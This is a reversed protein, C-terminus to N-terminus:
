ISCATAMRRSPAWRRPGRMATWRSTTAPSDGQWTNALQRGKPTFEAGWAYEAGDLGGRAAYEWEAETPLHKGAWAAYAAVDEAAVHVVPHRERGHLTSGPGEPHRWDAGPVFAWWNLHNRLDVPRVPPVFLSSGPVLSEPAAGPYRAADPLREAVTRYGTAKVFRRFHAATVPTADIWFGAVTVVRAPAEEPYHHDSGMRFAGGPVWVMHRDPPLAPATTTM